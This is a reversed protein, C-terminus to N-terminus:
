GIAQYVTIGTHKEIFHKAEQDLYYSFEFKEEDDDYYLSFSKQGIFNGYEDFAMIQYDYKYGDYDNEKHYDWDDSYGANVFVEQGYEDIGKYWYFGCFSDIFTLGLSNKLEGSSYCYGNKYCDTEFRIGLLGVTAIACVFIPILISSRIFKDKTLVCTLLTIIVFLLGGGLLAVVWPYGDCWSAILPYIFQGAIFGIISILVSIILIVSKM